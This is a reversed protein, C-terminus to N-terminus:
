IVINILLTVGLVSSTSVMCSAQFVKNWHHGKASFQNLYKIYHCVDHRKEVKSHDYPRKNWKHSEM